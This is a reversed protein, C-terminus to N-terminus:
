GTCRRTGVGSNCQLYHHPISCATHFNTCCRVGIVAQAASLFQQLNNIGRGEINARLQRRSATSNDQYVRSLAALSDLIDPAETRIDLVQLARFPPSMTGPRCLMRPWQAAQGRTGEPGEEGPRSRYLRRLSVNRTQRGPTHQYNKLTRQSRASGEFSVSLM